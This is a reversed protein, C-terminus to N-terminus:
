GHGAGARASRRHLPCTQCLAFGPLGHRLCCVRRHLHGERDLIGHLPNASGDPLAAASLAARAADLREPPASITALAWAFKAAANTWAVRRPLGAVALAAVVPELHMRVLETLREAPPIAPAWTVSFTDPLGQPTLGVAMHAADLSVAADVAVCSAVAAPVLALAYYQSWMSLCARGDAAPHCARYTGVARDLCPGRCLRTVPTPDPGAGGLTRGFREMGAPFAAGFDAATM